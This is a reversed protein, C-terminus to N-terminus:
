RLSYYKNDSLSDTKAFTRCMRREITTKTRLSRDSGETPFISAASGTKTEWKQADELGKKRLRLWSIAVRVTATLVQTRIGISSLGRGEPGREGAKKGRASKNLV